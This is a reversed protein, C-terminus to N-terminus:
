NIIEPHLKNTRELTVTHSSDKKINLDIIAEVQSNASDIM